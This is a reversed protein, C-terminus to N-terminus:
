MQRERVVARADGSPFPLWFETFQDERWWAIYKRGGERGDEGFRVLWFGVLGAM